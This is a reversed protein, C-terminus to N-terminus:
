QKISEKILQILLPSLKSAIIQDGQANPHVGDRNASAPYGNAVDLVYIPSDTKNQQAAWTPIQNNIATIGAQGFSLPIVTDIIIKVKPNAGRLQTVISTYASIIDTTTKGRSVDNTGLMFNVIDPKNQRLWGPLNNRAIDVALFGSHGEHRKDWAADKARCNMTNSTTSGVFQVQSSVGAAVLNDWLLARWCTIETISDGLPVIKLTLVHENSM